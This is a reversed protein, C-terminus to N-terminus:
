ERIGRGTLELFAEELSPPAVALDTLEVGAAGATRVVEQITELLRDVKVSFRGGGDRAINPSLTSLRAEFGCIAEESGSVSFTVNTRTRASEKLGRPTGEFFLKGHDLLVLRKCLSDAEEMFHTTLLITRGEANLNRLIQWISARTQPDIGSTPEDLFLIGPDHMLARAVMLRQVQGGSLQAVRAEQHTTLDVRQLWADAQRLAERRKMGFYRGHFYLNMRATLGRDLTNIQPVVGIHRKLYSTQVDVTHGDITVCGQSPRLRGTMMALTTSKGAGNPGLIGLFDGSVVQLDLSEVARVTRGASRYTRSLDRAELEM